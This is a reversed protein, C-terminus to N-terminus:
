KKGTQVRNNWAKIAERESSYKGFPQKMDCKECRVSFASFLIDKEQEIIAKGGCFPCRKLADWITEDSDWKNGIIEFHYSIGSSSFPEFFSSFSIFTISFGDPFKKDPISFGKPFRMGWTNYKELFCVEAKPGALITDLYKAPGYFWVKVIDGEFLKKGNKDHMGTYQGVTDPDVNYQHNFDEPSKDPTLIVENGALKAYYGEVWKDTGKWKGRFLIERM